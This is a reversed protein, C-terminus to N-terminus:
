YFGKIIWGEEICFKVFVFDELFWDFFDIEVVGFSIDFFSVMFFDFSCFVRFGLEEFYYFLWIFIYFLIGIFMM